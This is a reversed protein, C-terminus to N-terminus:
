EGDRGNRGGLSRRLEPDAERFSGPPFGELLAAPYPTHRAAADRLASPAEESAGVLAAVLHAVADGRVRERVVLVFEVQALVVPCCGDDAVAEWNQYIAGHDHHEALVAQPGKLLIADVTGAELAPLLSDGPMWAFNVAELDVGFLEADTRFQHFLGCGPSTGGVTRGAVDTLRLAEGKRGVLVAGYPYEVVGAVRLRGGRDARLLRVASGVELFGADLDGGLLAYGIDRGERFPRPAVGDGFRTEAALYLVGLLPSQMHGVRLADARAPTQSAQRASPVPDPAATGGDLPNDGTLWTSTVAHGEHHGRCARGHVPCTEGWHLFVVGGVVLLAVVSGYLRYSRKM